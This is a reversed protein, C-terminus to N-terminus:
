FYIRCKIISVRIMNLCLKGSKTTVIETETGFVAEDQSDMWKVRYALYNLEELRKESVPVEYLYQRLNPISSEVYTTATELPVTDTGNLLSYAERMEEITAPLSIGVGPSVTRSLYIKFM